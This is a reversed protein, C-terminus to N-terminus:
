VAKLFLENELDKWIWCKRFKIERYFWLINRTNFNRFLVGLKSQVVSGDEQPLSRSLNVGILVLKFQRNRCIKM